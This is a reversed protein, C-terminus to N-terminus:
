EAPAVAFQHTLEGLGQRAVQRPEDLVPVRLPFCDIEVRGEFPPLLIVADAPDEALLAASRGHRFWRAVVRDHVRDPLHQVISLRAPAEASDNRAPDMRIVIGDPRSSAAWPLPADEGAAAPTARAAASVTSESGAM